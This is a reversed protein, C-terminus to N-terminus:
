SENGLQRRAYRMTAVEDQAMLELSMMEQRHQSAHTDKLRDLLQRKQMLKVLRERNEAIKQDLEGISQKIEAARNWAHELHIRRSRVENLEVEGSQATKLQHSLRECLSLLEALRENERIRESELAALKLSADDELRQAQDLAPQLRFHFKRM